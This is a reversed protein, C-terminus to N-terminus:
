TRTNRSRTLKLPSNLGIPLDLEVSEVGELKNIFRLHSSVPLNEPEGALCVLRTNEVFTM